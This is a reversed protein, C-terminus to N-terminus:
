GLEELESGTLSSPIGLYADRVAPDNAIEAPTGVRITRGNALVTILDSV